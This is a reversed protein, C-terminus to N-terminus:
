NKFIADQNESLIGFFLLPIFCFVPDAAIGSPIKTLHQSAVLSM